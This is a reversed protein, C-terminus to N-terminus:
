ILFTEVLIFLLIDRQDIESRSCVLPAGLGSTQRSDAGVHVDVTTPMSGLGSTQRSDAGVHVDVTTPM